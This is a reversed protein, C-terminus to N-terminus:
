KVEAGGWEIVTYGARQIPELVQEELEEFEDLGKFIMFIRILTEPEPTIELAVLQEYEESLFRVKNYKYKELEPLWYTIFDNKEQFNLGLIELKEELFEITNEQSIVFGSPFQHEFAIEGEWYLYSYQRGEHDTIVGDPEVIVQWSSDYKPYSTTIICESEISIKVETTEEPYIYIVPKKILLTEAPFDIELLESYLIRIDDHTGILIEVTDFSEKYDDNINEVHYTMVRGDYIFFKQYGNDLILTIFFCGESKERIETVDVKPSVKYDINTMTDIFDSWDESPEITLGNSLTYVRIENVEQYSLELKISEDVTKYGEINNNSCSILLLLMLLSLAIKKM